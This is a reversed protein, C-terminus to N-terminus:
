TKDFPISPPKTPHRKHAVLRHAISVPSRRRRQPRPEQRNHARACHAAAKETPADIEEGFEPRVHSLAETGLATENLGFLVHECKPSWVVHTM